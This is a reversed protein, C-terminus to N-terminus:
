RGPSSWLGDWRGTARGMLTWVGLLALGACLIFVDFGAGGTLLAVVPGGVM